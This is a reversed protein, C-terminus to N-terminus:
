RVIKRTTGDSMRIINLGKQPQSLRKGNLDYCAVVTVAKSSGAASEKVGEIGTPDAETTFSQVEGYFTENESTTAFAVCQYTSGYDLDELTANMMQQGAGVIAVTETIADAPISVVTAQPEGEMAIDLSNSKNATKWYKFGQVTIKDTGALAYGKVLATRGETSIDAYTHVTPEFYSTNTPDFTAWDGYYYTGSNSLYYPRVRWFAGTYLNRISGEMTGEYVAAKGTNSAIDEPWDTRRWEFGVNEENEDVNTEAAVVVNGASVVKPQETKLTLPNTKFTYTTTEEGGEATNVIYKVSYLTNPDLGTLFLKTGETNYGDFKASIVNLAGANYKVECNFTTATSHVDSFYPDTGVYSKVDGSFMGKIKSVQSSHCLITCNTNLGSFPTNYTNTKYQIAESCIKLTKMESCGKFVNVSIYTISAPLILSTLGTCDQFASSSIYTVGYPINISSLNTCGSVIRSGITRVSEPITLSTLKTCSSFAGDGISIVTYVKGNYTVCSPIIVNGKYAERNIVNEYSYLTVVANDGSFNYYIGDICADYAFTAITLLLM